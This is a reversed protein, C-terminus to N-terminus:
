SVRRVRARARDASVSPIILAERNGDSDEIVVKKGERIADVLVHALGISFKITTGQNVDLWNQLQGLQDLTEMKLRVQVPKIVDTEMEDAIDEAIYAEQNAM